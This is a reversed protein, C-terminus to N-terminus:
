ITNKLSRTFLTYYISELRNFYFLSYSYSLIIFPPSPFSFPPLSFTHKELTRYLYIMIIFTKFFPTSGKWREGKMIQRRLCQHLGGRPPIYPYVSLHPFICPCLYSINEAM